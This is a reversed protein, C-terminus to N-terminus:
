LKVDDDRVSLALAPAAVMLDAVSTGLTTDVESLALAKLEVELEAAEIQDQTIAKSRFLRGREMELVLVQAQVKKIEKNITAIRGDIFEVNKKLSALSTSMRIYVRLCDCVV